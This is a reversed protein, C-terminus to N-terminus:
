QAFVPWNFNKKKHCQPVNKKKAPQYTAKIHSPFCTWNCFQEGGYEIQNGKPSLAHESKLQNTTRTGKERAKVLLRPKKVKQTYCFVQKNDIKSAEVYGSWVRILLLQAYSYFGQSLRRNESKVGLLRQLKTTRHWPPNSDAWAWFFLTRAARAV